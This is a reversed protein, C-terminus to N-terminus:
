VSSDENQTAKWDKVFERVARRQKIEWYVLPIIILVAMIVVLIITRSLVSDWGLTDHRAWSVWCVVWAIAFPLISAAMRWRRKRWFRANGVTKIDREDLEIM